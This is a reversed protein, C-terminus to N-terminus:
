QKPVTGQAPSRPHDLAAIIQQVVDNPLVSRSLYQQEGHKDVLILGLETDIVRAVDSFPLTTHVFLSKTEIGDENVSLTVESNASRGWMQRALWWARRYRIHLLELVGLAVLMAGAFGPQGTMTLLSVGAALMGAPFWYNPNAGKGHPLSEDFTEALYARSLMFQATFPKM